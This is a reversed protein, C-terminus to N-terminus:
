AGLPLEPMAALAPALATAGLAALAELVMAAPAVPATAALAELVMAAQAVQAVPTTAAQALLVV